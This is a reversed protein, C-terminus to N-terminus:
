LAALDSWDVVRGVGAGMANLADVLPQAAPSKWYAFALGAAACALMRRRPLLARWFLAFALLGAFDSLKGTLWSGYAAKLVHDNLVLLALSALLLPSLLLDAAAPPTPAPPHAPM